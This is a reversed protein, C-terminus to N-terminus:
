KKTVLNVRAAFENIGTKSQQKKSRLVSVKPRDMSSGFYGIGFSSSSYVAAIEVTELKSLTGAVLRSPEAQVLLFGASSEAGCQSNVQVTRLVKKCASSPGAQSLSSSICCERAAFGKMLHEGAGSVCCGVIFPAGFPGISSAWCGSGYMAALGVRGSVKLAIGGSSAGCAIHGESDLCIVGVTDSILDEDLADGVGNGWLEDAEAVTSPLVVGKSKAWVRAGEGVLFMPFIRGLLSSGSIQEKALLAAIEIANRVGAVAGVAGFAGSDGDIISADCEVQGNETLNSGRGANTNPDDELVLIAATVADICGGAGKRLVSSAALCARRMVSRLAKENSPAHYGAGVHVAVFFTPASLTQDAVESAM